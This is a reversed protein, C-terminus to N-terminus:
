ATDGTQRFGNAAERHRERKDPAPQERALARRRRFRM